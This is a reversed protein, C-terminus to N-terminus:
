FTMLSPIVLKDVTEPYFRSQNSTKLSVLSETKIYSNEFDDDDVNTIM